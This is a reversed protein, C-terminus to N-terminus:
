PQVLWQLAALLGGALQRPMEVHGYHTMPVDFVLVRIPIDPNNKRFENAVRLERANSPNQNWHGDDLKTTSWIMKRYGTVPARMTSFLDAIAEDPNAGFPNGQLAQQIQSAAHERLNGASNHEMDQLPQKFQPRRREELGMWRQAMAVRSQTPDWVPNLPGLYGRSYGEAPRPRIEWVDLYDEASRIGRFERMSTLAAPGGTGWGFSLGQTRDKLSSDKLIFQIEGGTSHGVLVVPGSTVAEVLKKVGETVVRFTYVANRVKLEEASVDRDLLYGPIRKEYEPETWGGHRYNGPITVLLVPIKQALYQGLGPRNLPDLFFEYWNAAGGNIIVLTPMGPLPHNPILHLGPIDWDLGYLKYRIEHWKARYGLQDAPLSELKRPDVAGGPAADALAKVRSGGDPLDWGLQEFLEPSVSHYPQEQQLMSIIQAEGPGQAQLAPVAIALFALTAGIRFFSHIM